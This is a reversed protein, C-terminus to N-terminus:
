GIYIIHIYPTMTHVKMSLVYWRYGDGPFVHGCPITQQVVWGKSKNNRLM